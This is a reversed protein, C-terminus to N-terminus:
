RNLGPTHHSPDVRLRDPEKTWAQCIAECPTLGAAGQPPPRLHPRRPLSRPPRATRRPKWPPLTQRNSGQPHPEHTRGSRQDLSPEGQDAPARHRARRVRPRLHAPQGLHRTRSQHVSHRQGDARHPARLARRLWALLRAFAFTSTRDVAVFLRLKGQETSVEAIDLHVYGTPHAKFRKRDPKDGEAQPLRSIGHRQLCRHLSSRTLAPISPQLAYLGDDLPLVAHRRFTVVMAEQEPTLTTSRTDKPGMAADAATERKRWKQVTTPSIGHRKALARVGEQSRQIARRVAETATARGHLVQGMVRGESGAPETDCWVVPGFVYFPCPKTVDRLAAVMFFSRGAKRLAM